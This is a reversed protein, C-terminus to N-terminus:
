LYTCRERINTSSYNHRRPTYTVPATWHHKKDKHDEGMFRVNVKLTNDMDQLEEETVYTIIEDVYKNAKLMIWREYVSMIPKHKGSRDISPDVQLAVILYDCHRKCEAFHLCHGAHVFDWAGATLGIVPSNPAM